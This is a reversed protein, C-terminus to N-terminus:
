KKALIVIHMGKETDSYLKNIMDGFLIYFLIYVKKLLFNNSNDRPLPEFFHTTKIEEVVLDKEILGKIYGITKANENPHFGKGKIEYNRYVPLNPSTFILYGEKELLGKIIKFHNKQDEDDLHEFMEISLVLDYKGQIPKIIDGVSFDIIPNKNRAINIGEESLDIGHLEYNQYRKRIFMLNDGKGCGLEIVKMSEKNIKKLFKKIFYQRSRERINVYFRKEDEKEYKNDYFPIDEKM